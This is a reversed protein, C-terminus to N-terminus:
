LITHSCIATTSQTLNDGQTWHSSILPYSDEGTLPIHYGNSEALLTKLKRKQAVIGHLVAISAIPILLPPLVEVVQSPPLVQRLPFVFSIRTGSAIASSTIHQALFISLPIATYCPLLASITSPAIASYISIRRSFKCGLWCELPLPSSVRDRM